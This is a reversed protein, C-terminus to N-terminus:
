TCAGSSGVGRVPDCLDTSEVSKLVFGELSESPTGFVHLRLGRLSDDGLGVVDYTVEGLDGVTPAVSMVIESPVESDVPVSEAVVRGLDLMTEEEPLGGLDASVQATRDDTAGLQATFASNVWGYTGDDTVVEWWISEDLARARGTAEVETGTPALDAVVSEDVGPGARVNLVDDHAVGIVALAAGAAPALDFPEGALEDDPRPGNPAGTDTPGTTAPETSSPETTSPLTTSPETTPVSTTTDTTAADDDGCGAGVLALVVIGAVVRAALSRPVISRPVPAM